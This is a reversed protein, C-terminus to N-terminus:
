SAGAKALVLTQWVTFPKPRAPPKREDGDASRGNRPAGGGPRGGGGPQGGGMGGLGQLLGGGASAIKASQLGFGISAGAATGIAYPHDADKRLPVKLEYVLAGDVRALSVSLGTAYALVLSRIDDDKPGYVELRAPILTMLEAMAAERKRDSPARLAPGPKRPPRATASDGSRESRQDADPNPPPTGVPYKIGFTKSDGGKADFWVLLGGRVIQQMTAPDSTRLRVFVHTDDNVVSVSASVDLIPALTDAWEADTGDIQIETTRWASAISPRTAAWLASSVVLLALLGVLLCRRMM